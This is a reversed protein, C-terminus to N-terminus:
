NRIVGMCWATVIDMYETSLIDTNDYATHYLADNDTQAFLVAPIGYAEFVAHDSRDEAGFVPLTLNKQLLAAYVLSAAANHQGTTTYMLPPGQTRDAFMDLVFAAQIASREGETLSAMYKQAGVLGLEEASSFLFIVRYDSGAERTLRAIEMLTAVGAGNDNAGPTGPVSDYHACFLLTGKPEEPCYEAVVNQGTLYGSGQSTLTAIEGETVLNSLNPDKSVTIITDPLTAALNVAGNGEDELLVYGAPTGLQLAHIVAGFGVDKKSILIKGETSQPVTDGSNYFLIEGVAAGQKGTGAGTLPYEVGNVNLTNIGEFIGSFSRYEPAYGLRTLEQHLLQAAQECGETGTMRNVSTLLSLYQSIRNIDGLPLLGEALCDACMHTNGHACLAQAGKNRYRQMSAPAIACVSDPIHLEPAIVPLEVAPEPTVTATPTPTMRPAPATLVEEVPTPSVTPTPTKVPKTPAACGCLLLLATCLCLSRKM